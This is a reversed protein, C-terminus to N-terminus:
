RLTTCYGIDKRYYCDPWTILKVAQYAKQRAEQLDKGLATISLVRGGNTVVNGSVERTGAHFVKVDPLYLRNLGQVIAGKQYRTPYGRAALVVTLAARPDWVNKTQNLKGSLASLILKILDSRLRMMLSQTEPDGLRVNFELVKPENDPTIMLGAYLFGTYFIGESKLGIVTPRVITTTIKEQLDKSFYSVPSYAGMGGTNPGRDGDDRRKYDQSEALPLICKGDLITIFSIETGTLFEEIIIEEGAHGFQKKEMMALVIKKAERLSKAIIVGKGAALGNAKIVIPFSQYELYNLAQNRNKFIKFHATPINYRQMFTKCFSKSTELQAAIKEPGFICLDEQHFYHVVNAALPIESGVITLDIKKEKAFTVLKKLNTIEIAVNKTKLEKATGVNGPAVWIKEVYPSQATKWTLAHERSGSGIILINM